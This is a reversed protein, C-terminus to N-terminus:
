MDTSCKFEVGEVHTAAGGGFFGVGEAGLGGGGEGAGETCRTRVAAVGLPLRKESGGFRFRQLAAERIQGPVVVHRRHVLHGGQRLQGQVGKHPHQERVQHHPAQSRRARRARAARAAGAIATATTTPSTAATPTVFGVERLQVCLSELRTRHPQPKIRSRPPRPKRLTARLPVGQGHM